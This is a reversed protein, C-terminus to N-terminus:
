GFFGLEIQNMLVPLVLVVRSRRFDLDRHQRISDRIQRLMELQVLFIMMRPPAQKLHDTTAPTEQIVEAIVIISPVPRDQLPQSDSFLMVVVGTGVCADSGTPGTGRTFPPLL